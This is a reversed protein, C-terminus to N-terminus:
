LQALGLLLDQPINAKKISAFKNESKPLTQTDNYFAKLNECLSSTGKEPILDNFKRWSKQRSKMYISIIREYLFVRVDDKLEQNEDKIKHTLLQQSAFDLLSNFSQFLPLNCSLSNHIYQLINPGFEEYKEFLLLILSEMKYMFELFKQGPIVNTIQSRVDKEYIVQESNLIELYTCIDKFQSHSKTVHDNKTLKYIIWGVIYSFKSAEAPELIIINKPTINCDAAFNTPNKEDGKKFTYKIVNQLLLYVILRLVSFDHLKTKALFEQYWSGSCQYNNLRFEFTSNWITLWQVGIKKLVFECAIKKINDKWLQLLEDISDLYLIVEILNQREIQLQYIKLNEYDVNDNFSKLPFKFRGMTLNDTFLNKFITCSFSSLQLLRMNYKQSLDNENEKNEENHLKKEKRYDRRTLSNIGIGTNNAIGYNISKIESSVLATIQYKNLAHGYSKLTQTSSDGGLERIVGFLGELMDQSIRRSQVISGPYKKLIFELLGLFGDISLILDFQCQPSIWEMHGTKQKDRYIFWNRIEKLTNVRLDEMSCFNIKSHMIRTGESINKLKNISALADEVEKSLTHEALDVRM